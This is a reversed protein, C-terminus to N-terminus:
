KKEANRAFVRSLPLDSERRIVIWDRFFPDDFEYGKNKIIYGRSILRAIGSYATSQHFSISSLKKQMALAILIKKDTQSITNWLREYDKDHITIISQAVLSLMDKKYKERELFSFCYFALQQTYYPHSDTFELIERSVAESKNTVKEFRKKLYTFFDNCPIKDLAMLSGFHYFPSKKSEFITKMMSELSGLFVYNVNKHHQIVARLQKLLNKDLHTIEQFEDLVVIPKNGGKGTKEILNLVDELPTFKNSSSPSFSVEMKSTQPNLEITPVIRFNALFHKIKEWKNVNLFKKLLQTALDSVDTALQLDMYIVPRSLSSTVKNVLSTKGYRRPSILVLHNSSALINKAEEAEKQRDTFFDEGVVSGFKFPNAM